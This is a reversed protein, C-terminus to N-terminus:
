ERLLEEAETGSLKSADRYVTLYADQLGLEKIEDRLAFAFKVSSYNGATYVYLGNIIKYEVPWNKIQNFLNVMDEPVEKSFAGLQIKYCIGKEDTKIGNEETAEPYTSISNTYVVISPSSIASPSVTVFDTSSNGLQVPNESETQIAPDNQQLTRAEGFSIRKGDRYASVFADRFGMNAVKNKADVVREPSNYIGATYRFLGNTLSEACVPTLGRLQAVTAQKTFVGIQITYLLAKSKELEKAVKVPAIVEASQAARPINENATIGATKPAAEDILIGKEKMAALADSISIRKGDLYAVVFADGYGLGRLDNKVATAGEMKQFNGATYRIYGSATTEGNM